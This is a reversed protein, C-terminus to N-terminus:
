RSAEFEKPKGHPLLQMTLSHVARWGAGRSVTSRIADDFLGFFRRTAIVAHTTQLGAHVSCGGCGEVPEHFSGLSGKM